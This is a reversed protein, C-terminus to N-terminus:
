YVEARNKVQASAGSSELVVLSLVVVAPEEMECKLGNKPICHTSETEDGSIGEAQSFILIRLVSVGLFPRNRHPYVLRSEM